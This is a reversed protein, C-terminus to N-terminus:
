LSMIPHHSNSQDSEPYAGTFLEHSCPLLAEPEM